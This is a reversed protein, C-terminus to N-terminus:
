LLYDSPIIDALSENLKKLNKNFKDRANIRITKRALNRDIRDAHAERKFPGNNKVFPLCNKRYLISNESKEGVIEGNNIQGNVVQIFKFLRTMESEPHMLLQEFFLVHVGKRCSETLIKSYNDVYSELYNHETQVRFLTKYTSQFMGSSIHDTRNHKVSHQFEAIFADIPKRLLLVCYDLDVKIFSRKQHSNTSNVEILSNVGFAITNGQFPPYIEGIFEEMFDQNILSKDTGTTAFGISQEIMQRLLTVGSGPFNFIPLPQFQGNKALRIPCSEQNQLTKIKKDIKDSPNKSSSKDNPSNNGPNKNTSTRNRSFTTNSHNNKPSNDAILIENNFLLTSVTICAAIVAFVKIHVRHM